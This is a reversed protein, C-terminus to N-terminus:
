TPRALTLLGCGYAKARGLGNVLTSRLREADTVELVGDFRATHLTVPRSKARDGRFFRLTNRGTVRIQPNNQDDRVISFGSKEARELFWQLQQEPTVHFVVKGRRGRQTAVSSVPNAVIEFRWRQGSMLNSTFRAYDATEAPRTMWGAQEVLHHADPREPAVVYLVHEHQHSDVRWLVRGEAEDLDPPFSARVAAHMAQPDNLLKRAGRKQPNIYLRTLTSM